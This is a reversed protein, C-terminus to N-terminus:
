KKLYGLAPIHLLLSWTLLSLHDVALKECCCKYSCKHLPTHPPPPPHYCSGYVHLLSPSADWSCKHGLSFLINCEYPIQMCSPTLIALIHKHSWEKMDTNALLFPLILWNRHMDNQNFETITKNEEEEALSAEM